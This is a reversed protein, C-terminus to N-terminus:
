FCFLLKNIAIRLEEQLAKLYYKTSHAIMQANTQTKNSYALEVANLLYLLSKQNYEVELFERMISYLEEMKRKEM